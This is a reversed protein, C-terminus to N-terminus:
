AQLEEARAQMQKFVSEFLPTVEGLSKLGRETIGGPTAIDDASEHELNGAQTTLLAQTLLAETLLSQMARFFIRRGIGAATEDKLPQVGAGAAAQVAAMVVAPWSAGLLSLRAFTEEDEVVDFDGFKDLEAKAKIWRSGPLDSPRLVLMPISNVGDILFPSICVITARPFIRQLSERSLSFAANFVNGTFQRAPESGEALDLLARGPIAIVLSDAELIRTWEAVWTGAAIRTVGNNGPRSGSRSWVLPARGNRALWTKALADGLRGAGLLGLRSQAAAQTGINAVANAVNNAM